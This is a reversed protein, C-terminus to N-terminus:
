NQIRGNGVYLIYRSHDIIYPRELGVRVFALLVCVHVVWDLHAPDSYGWERRTSDHWTVVCMIAWASYM